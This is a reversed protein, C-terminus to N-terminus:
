TTQRRQDPLRVLTNDSSLNYGADTFAGSSRNHLNHLNHPNHANHPNSEKHLNHPNHPNLLCGGWFSAIEGRM